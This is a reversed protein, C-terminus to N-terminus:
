NYQEEGVDDATCIRGDYFGSGKQENISISEYQEWGFIIFKSLFDYCSGKCIKDDNRM